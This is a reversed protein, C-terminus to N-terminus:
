EGGGDGVVADVEVRPPPAPETGSLEALMVWALAEAEEPAVTLGTGTGSM